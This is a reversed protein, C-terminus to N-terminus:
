AGALKLCTSDVLDQNCFLLIKAMKRYINQFFFIIAIKHWSTNPVFYNPFPRDLQSFSFNKNINSIEGNKSFYKSFLINHSSRSINLVFYNPFARAPFSLSISFM